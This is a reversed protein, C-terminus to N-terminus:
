KIITSIFSVIRQGQIRYNKTNLIFDKAARGKSELEDKGLQLTNNLTRYYGDVTEEDFTYIYSYYDKPMAALKTTIIPTGSAMYEYNKSPFSFHTYVAQTFRPNVLLTAEVEARVVESNAVLGRYEIRPDKQTLEKLEDVFPGDGYLILRAKEYPLKMFAKCLTGIGYLESLGGAYLIDSTERKSLNPYKLMEDDVIAEMVIYPHNKTNIYKNSEESIYIYADFHALLNFHLKRLANMDKYLIEKMGTMGPMDTVLGVCKIGTLWSAFLVSLCSSIKLVDCIIIKKSKNRCSWKILYLLVYIFVCINKLVSINIFPIYQYHIGNEEEPKFRIIRKGYSSVVPPVSLVQANISNSLLGKLLLKSFKQIAYGPNTGTREKIADLKANSALDSIYLVNM